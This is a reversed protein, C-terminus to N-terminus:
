NTTIYYRNWVRGLNKVVITFPGTRNPVWRVLCEDNWDEDFDILSGNQDYVYLDLDTDGDGSVYVEALKGAQFNITYTNTAFAEVREMGSKPGGVAGRTATGLARQVSDAWAIMTSDRGALRRADALLNAPTFEPPTDTRAGSAATSQGRSPSTGLSQTQIGALIEAAGILASASYNSYGYKALNYATQIATIEPSPEASTSAKDNGQAFLPMGLICAIVVILVKKM